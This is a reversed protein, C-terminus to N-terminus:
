SILKCLCCWYKGKLEINEKRQWVNMYQFTIPQFKSYSPLSGWDLEHLPREKVNQLLKVPLINYFFGFRVHRATCELCILFLLLNNDISWRTKLSMCLM